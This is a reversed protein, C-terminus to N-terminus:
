YRISFFSGVGPSDTRMMLGLAHFGAFWARCAQSRDGHPRLSAGINVLSNADGLISPFPAPDSEGEARGPFVTPLERDPRSGGECCLLRHWGLMPRAKSLIARAPQDDM